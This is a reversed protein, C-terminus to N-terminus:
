DATRLWSPRNLNQTQKDLLLGNFVPFKYRILSISEFFTQRIQRSLIM